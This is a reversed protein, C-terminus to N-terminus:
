WQYTLTANIKREEGYYCYNTSNYCSTVYENDFLNSISVGLSLGDLSAYSAGIDWRAGLDVVTYSPVETTNLSDAWQDGIHRIGLSADFSDNFRYNTWISANWKPAQAPTNGNLIAEPGKNESIEPRNVNLAGQVFWNDSLYTRAEFEVGKSTRTGSPTYYNGNIVRNATNKQEIDYLAVSYLNNTGAPQYKVGLELQKSTTPKLLNGKQDNYTNPNFGTSYTIYPSIGNEFAYLASLRGTIKDGDWKSEFNTPNDLTSNKVKDFRTGLKFHWNDLQISDNLYIGLQQLSYTRDSPSQGYAYNTNDYVPNRVDLIPSVGYEYSAEVDTEREQYDVGAVLTHSLAGTVFGWQINNDLVFSKLHEDSKGGMRGLVLMDSPLPNGTTPDETVWGTHWTQRSNVKVDAYRFKSQFMVDDNFLHSFQYGIIKQDREFKDTPESDSFSTPFKFGNNDTIMGKAPLGSHYGGEPDKQLYAQLLLNTQPAIDWSLSPALAYRKSEQGDNQSDSAKHLGTLRYAINGDADLTDTLDFGVRRQQNTGITFSIEHFAEDHLPTKTTASVIGGPVARGFDSSVSGKIMDIREIFYPDIQMSSYTNSDSLLKLGDIMTNDTANDTFGRLGIYDYRTAAGVLDTVAGTSYKLAQSISEPHQDEIQQRTVVSVSQATENLAANVRGVAVTRTASYGETRGFLNDKDIEGIVEVAELEGSSNTETLIITEDAPTETSSQQASATHCLLVSIILALPKKTM